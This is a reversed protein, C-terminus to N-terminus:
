QIKRFLLLIKGFFHNFICYDTYNLMCLFSYKVFYFFLLFKELLKIPLKLFIAFALRWANLEEIFLILKYTEAFKKVYRYGVQSTDYNNGNILSLLHGYEHLLIIIEFQFSLQPLYSHKRYIAIDKTDSFFLGTNPRDVSIISNENGFYININKNMKSNIYNFIFRHTIQDM